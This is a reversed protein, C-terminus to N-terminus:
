AGNGSFCNLTLSASPKCAELSSLPSVENICDFHFIHMCDVLRVRYVDDAISELCISCTSRHSSACTELRVKSKKVAPLQSPSGTDMQSLSGTPGAVTPNFEAPAQLGIICELDDRLPVEAGSRIGSSRTRTELIQQSYRSTPLSSVHRSFLSRPIVFSSLYIHLKLPRVHSAGFIKSVM